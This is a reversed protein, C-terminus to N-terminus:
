VQKYRTHMYHMHLLQHASCSEMSSCAATGLEAMSPDFRTGKTEYENIVHVAPGSPPLQLWSHM